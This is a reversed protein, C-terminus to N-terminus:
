LARKCIGRPKSEFGLNDIWEPGPGFDARDVCDIGRNGRFDNNSITYAIGLESPSGAVIGRGAFGTVKNGSVLFGGVRIGDGTTTNRSGILVNDVITGGGIIGYRANSIVNREFTGDAIIGSIPFRDKNSIMLSDVVEASGCCGSMNVAFPGRLFWPWGSKKPDIRHNIEFFRSRDVSVVAEGGSGGDIFGGIGSRNFDRFVSDVVELTLIGCCQTAVVSIATNYGGCSSGFPESAAFVVNTLRVHNEEYIAVLPGQTCEGTGGHTQFRLGRITVDNEPSATM